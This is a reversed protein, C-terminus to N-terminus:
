AGDATDVIVVTCGAAHSVRNPVNGLLFTKRGRMGVSGVVVVDARERQVAEVIADAPDEGVAVLAIAGPALGAAYRVLEDRAAPSDSAVVRVLLLEAEYRSAMDAAWAVARGATPSLDTGVLIRRM